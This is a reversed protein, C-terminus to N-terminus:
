GHPFRKGTKRSTIPPATPECLKCKGTCNLNVSCHGGPEERHRGVPKISSRIRCACQDRPNSAFFQPPSSNIWSAPQLFALTKLRQASGLSNHRPKCALHVM